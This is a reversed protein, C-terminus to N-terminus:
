FRPLEGTAAWINRGIQTSIKRRLEDLFKIFSHSTDRM